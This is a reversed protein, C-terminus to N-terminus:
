THSTVPSRKFISLFWFVAMSISALASGYLSSKLELLYGEKTIEGNEVIQIQSHYMSENISLSVLKFALYMVLTVLFMVACYQWLNHWQLKSLVLHSLGAMVLFTFYSMIINLGLWRYFASYEILPVSWAAVFIIPAILIGIIIRM